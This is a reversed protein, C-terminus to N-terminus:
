QKTSSVVHNLGNEIMAWQMAKAILTRYEM